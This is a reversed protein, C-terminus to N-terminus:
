RCAAAAANHLADPGAVAIIALCILTILVCAVKENPSM